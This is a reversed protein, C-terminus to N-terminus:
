QDKCPIVGTKPELRCILRNGEMKPPALVTSVEELAKIIRNIVRFGEDKHTIERNKFQLNFNVKKGEALFKKAANIKTDIDNDQIGPRLRLEKLEIQSERQKKAQEKEKQTQQFKFKGFEIIQCVPPNAHPVVEVLDLGDDMALKRAKDTPMIGLQEGDRVVRVNPVRINFNVRIFGKREKNNRREM